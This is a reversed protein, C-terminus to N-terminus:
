PKETQESSQPAITLSTQTKEQGMEPSTSACHAGPPFRIAWRLPSAIETNGGHGSRGAGGLLRPASLRPPTDSPGANEAALGSCNIAGCLLYSCSCGGGWLDQGTQPNGHLFKPRVALLEHLPPATCTSASAWCQLVHCHLLVATSIAFPLLLM